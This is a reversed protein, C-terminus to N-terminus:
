SAREFPKSATFFSSTSFFRLSSASFFSSTCFIDNQSLFLRSASFICIQQLCFSCGALFCHVVVSWAIPLAVLGDCSAVLYGSPPVLLVLFKSPWPAVRFCGLPPPLSAAVFGCVSLPLCVSCLSSVHLASVCVCARFSLCRLCVFVSGLM